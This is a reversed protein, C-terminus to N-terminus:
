RQDLQDAHRLDVECGRIEGKLEGNKSKSPDKM